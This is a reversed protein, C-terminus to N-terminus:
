EVFSSFQLLLVTAQSCFFQAAGPHLEVLYVYNCPGWEYGWGYGDMDLSRSSLIGMSSIPEPEKM